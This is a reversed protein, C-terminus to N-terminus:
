GLGFDHNATIYKGETLLTSPSSSGPTDDVCWQESGLSSHQRIECRLTRVALLGVKWFCRIKCASIGHVYM